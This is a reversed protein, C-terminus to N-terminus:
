IKINEKNNPCYFEFNEDEQLAYGKVDKGMYDILLNSKELLGIESFCPLWLYLEVNYKNLLKKTEVYLEEDVSWGMIVKEIDICDLLELLKCKIDNFKIEKAKFGGTFIQVIVKKRDMSSRRNALAMALRIGGYVPQNEQSIFKLNKDTNETKLNNMLM